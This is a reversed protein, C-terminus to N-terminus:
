KYVRSTYMATVRTETGTVREGATRRARHHWGGKPPETIRQAHTSHKKSVVVHCMFACINTLAAKLIYRASIYFFRYRRPLRVYWRLLVYNYPNRVNTGNIHPKSLSAGIIIHSCLYWYLLFHILCHVNQCRMVSMGIASTCHTGQRSSINRWM